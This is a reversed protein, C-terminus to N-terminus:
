GTAALDYQYVHSIDPEVAVFGSGPQEDSCVVVTVVDNAHQTSLVCHRRALAHVAEPAVSSSWIRGSFDDVLRDAPGERVVRGRRLVVLHALRNRFVAAVSTAVIVIRHEAIEELVDLFARADAENLDRALEDLLLLRPSTLLAIALLFRRHMSPSLEGVRLARAGWLGVDRLQADVRARRLQAGTPNDLAAFHELAVHVPVPAPVRVAPPMFAAYGRLLMPNSDGAMDGYSVSGRDPAERASMVNLLTSKGAGTPGLVVNLGKTLSLSVDDLARSGGPYIKTVHELSLQQKRREHFADISLARRM